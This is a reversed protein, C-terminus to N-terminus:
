MMLILFRMLLCEYPITLNSHLFIFSSYRLAFSLDYKAILMYCLPVQIKAPIYQWLASCTTLISNLEIPVITTDYRDCPDDSDCVNENGYSRGSRKRHRFRDKRCLLSISAGLASSTWSLPKCMSGLSAFRAKAAMKLPPLFSKRWYQARIIQHFTFASKM